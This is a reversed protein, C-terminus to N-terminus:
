ASRRDQLEQGFLLSYARVHHDQRRRHSRMFGTQPDYLKKYGMSRNLFYEYDSTKGLKKAVQAVSWDDLCYEMTMSVSEPHSNVVYGYKKMYNLGRFDMM